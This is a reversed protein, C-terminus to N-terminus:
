GRFFGALTRQKGRSEGKAKKPVRRPGPRRSSAAAKAEARSTASSAVALSQQKTKKSPAPDTGRGTAHRASARSAAAEAHRTLNTPGFSLVRQGSQVNALKSAYSGLLRMLREPAIHFQLLKQIPKEFCHEYYYHLDPKLNAAEAYRLVEAKHFGKTRGRGKTICYVYQIREGEKYEGGHNRERERRNAMIHEMTDANKYSDEDGCLKSMVLEELHVDGSAFRAMYSALVDIAGAVNSGKPDLVEPARQVDGEKKPVWEHDPEWEPDPITALLQDVVARYM